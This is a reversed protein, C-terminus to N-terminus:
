WRDTNQAPDIWEMGGGWWEQLDMTINDKWRRRPQGLPRKGWLSGWGFVTLVEFRRGNMSCSGGMEKMQLSMCGSYKNKKKCMLLPSQFRFKSIKVKMNNMRHM